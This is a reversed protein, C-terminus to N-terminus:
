RKATGEWDPYGEAPAHTHTDSWHKLLEVKDMEIPFAPTKCQREGNLWMPEQLIVSVPLCSSCWITFEHWGGSDLLQFAHTEVDNESVCYLIQARTRCGIITLTGSQIMEVRPYKSYNFRSSEFSAHIEGSAERLENQTPKEQLSVVICYLLDVLHFIARWILFGPKVFLWLSRLIESGCKDQLEIWFAQGIKGSKWDAVKNIMNLFGMIWPYFLIICTRRLIQILRLILEYEKSRDVELDNTPCSDAKVAYNNIAM